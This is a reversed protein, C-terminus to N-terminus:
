FSSSCTVNQWLWKPELMDSIDELSWCPQTNPFAVPEQKPGPPVVCAPKELNLGCVDNKNSFMVDESFKQDFLFMMTLEAGSTTM